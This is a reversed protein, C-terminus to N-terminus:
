TRTPKRDAKTVKKQTTLILLLLMFIQGDFIICSPPAFFTCHYIIVIRPVQSKKTLNKKAEFPMRLCKVSQCTLTVEPLM